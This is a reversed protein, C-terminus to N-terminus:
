CDTNSSVTHVCMCFFYQGRTLSLFCRYALLLLHNNGHIETMQQITTAAKTLFLWLQLSFELNIRLYVFTDKFMFSKHTSNESILISGVLGGFFFATVM